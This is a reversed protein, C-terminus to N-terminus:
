IRGESHAKNYKKIEEPNELYVSYVQINEPYVGTPDVGYKVKSPFGLVKVFQKKFEELKVKEEAKFTKIVM